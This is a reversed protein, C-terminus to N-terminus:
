QCREIAAHFSVEAVFGIELCIVSKALYDTTFLINNNLTIIDQATCCDEIIYCYDKGMGNNSVAFCVGGFLSAQSDVDVLLAIAEETTAPPTSGLTVTFDLADQLSSLGGQADLDAIVQCTAADFGALSCILGSSLQSILGNIESIDYAFGSLCLTDGINASLQTPSLLFSPDDVELFSLGNPGEVVYAYNPLTSTNDASNYNLLLADSDNNCITTKGNPEVLNATTQGCSSQAYSQITSFTIILIFFFKLIVM